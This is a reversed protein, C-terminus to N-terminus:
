QTPPFALSFYYTNLLTANLPPLKHITRLNPLSDWHYPASLAFSRINSTHLKHKQKKNCM